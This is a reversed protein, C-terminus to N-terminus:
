QKGVAILYHQTRFYLSNGSIAPTAMVIDGLSNKALVKFEAGAKMIYVDGQETAYYLKGNSAVGSATIGRAEPIREKYILKGTKAEFCSLSGNMRLNYLYDGYVLVTPMYAAGRKISWVIHKNTTSDKHLTIDGKATPKIAYIPQYRGHSNHIYILDHAFIPAPVPADGGGNMKWVEKGTEFDYAGMHKYGNAIIHKIGNKNYFTPTSWTSIEDRNTSWLEKGTEIDLSAVYSQGIFDCQLIVRNEHIIPSSAFGWEVDPDTYPGANMKGLDKKWILKGDFDYCYLGDSGFSAVVYEGNTAVTPNAHSSKTHRETKPVAKRSLNEWLVIGTNKDICYVKFEHVSRDNVEDINGYLGVKLSDEGKGSIATTIFLKDQWIVPCSHGLGPINLKWKINEGTKIDWKNPLNTTEVIGSAFPGRFQPWQKMYDVQANLSYVLCTFVLFFFLNKLFNM